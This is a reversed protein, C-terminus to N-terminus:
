NRGGKELISRVEEVLRSASYPKQVFGTIGQKAFRGVVEVENYGSSVIVPIDPRIERLQTLAQEGNMVPMTTDLVILAVHDKMARFISVAENGEHAVIVRYGHRELSVRGVKRVAEEDDVLLITGQVRLNRPNAPEPKVPVGADQVAPLFVRFITGQGPSSDVTLAGKHGRVIGSVAALGLGRGTFKTTFFPDFMKTKTEESMGSGTDRIELCVYRGPAIAGPSLTREVFADDIELASTKVIAVGPEGGMAEAANILLNMILQQMQGSDAAVRPLREQLELRVEVSNGIMPKILVQIERVQESIDLSRLVFRGKGSYALMQRTLDAARESANVIQGALERDEENSTSALLSANGLIGTLLNNFDHAIGGAMVGLSELKQKQLMAEDQRKQDEIDTCTGFWREIKGAADRAPTGRTRFCRYVGDHRRLRFELDYPARDNIAAMWAQFTRDRDEPHMVLDLWKLGLQERAPIGTYSEWQRSLYDCSGDPLCTWVLQPISEALTRMQHENEEVQRRATVLDTVDTCYVLIGDIEGDAGRTPQYVFTVFLDDALGDGDTDIRCLMEKGVYPEGTRYVRNLLELFQEPVEPIAEPVTKGLLLEASRGVMREYDRNVLEFVHDAGRLVAIAAPALLLLDRLRQRELEVQSRLSRELETAKRRLLSVTLSSTVRALLERSSFPKVLYDDAGAELAEIRAEEGARASVLIVPIAATEPNARISRLLDFGSKRPMMVDALVLDPPANRIAELATAGDPVSVVQYREGILRRVYDRMDANDDALLVRPASTAPPVDTAPAPIWSLAEEVFAVAGERDRSPLSRSTKSGRAHAVPLPLVVTFESGRGA